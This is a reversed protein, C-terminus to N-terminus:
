RREEPTGALLGALRELLQDPHFPKPVFSAHADSQVSNPITAHASVLVVPLTRTPMQHRLKALVTLGDIGPLRVDLVAARLDHRIACFHELQALAEEGTGCEVPTYGGLRLTLALARRHDADDEVVLVRPAEVATGTM